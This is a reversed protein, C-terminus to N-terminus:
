ETGVLELEDSYFAKEEGDFSVKVHNGALETLLEGVKGKYIKHHKRPKVVKVQQPAHHGNTEKEKEQSNNRTDLLEGNFNSNKHEQIDKEVLSTLRQQMSTSTELCMKRFELHTEDEM